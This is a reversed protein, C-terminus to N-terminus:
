ILLVRHLTFLPPQSDVLYVCTRYAAPESHFQLLNNFIDTCTATRFEFDFADDKEGTNEERILHFIGGVRDPSSHYAFGLMCGADTHNHYVASLWASVSLESLFLLLTFIGIFTTRALKM